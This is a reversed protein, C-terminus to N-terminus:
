ARGYVSFWDHANPGVMKSGTFDDIDNRGAAYILMGSPSVTFEFFGNNGSSTVEDALPFAEGTTKLQATDFKKSTFLRDQFNWLKGQAGACRAAEAAKLADAHMPLPFDKFAFALKDGYEKQLKQLDPYIAQCYPCEYDAFEVLLVRANQPGRRQANDVAVTAAPPALAIRVSAQSRLAQLYAARAKTLRIQHITAVIKQRVAEFPEESRLGEYFVQLQDDTPDKVKGAVERQLLQEM